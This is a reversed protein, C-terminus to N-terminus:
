DLHALIRETGLHSVHNADAYLIGQATSMICM